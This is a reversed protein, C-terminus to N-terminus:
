RLRKGTMPGLSRASLAKLDGILVEIVLQSNANVDLQQQAEAIREIASAANEAEEADDANASSDRLSDDFSRAALQLIEDLGRRTSEAETMEADDARLREGLTKALDSWLKM